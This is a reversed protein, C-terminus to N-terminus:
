PVVPERCESPTVLKVLEEFYQEHGPPSVTMIMRGPKDSANAINQLCARRSSCILELRPTSKKAAWTGSASAKWCMSCKKRSATFTPVPPFDPRGVVRLRHTMETEASIVALSSMGGVLGNVGVWGM